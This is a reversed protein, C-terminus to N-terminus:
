GSLNGRCLVGAPQTVILMAIWSDSCHFNHSRPRGKIEIIVTSLTSASYSLVCVHTYTARRKFIFVSFTLTVSLFSNTQQQTVRTLAWQKCHDCWKPTSNFSAITEEMKGGPSFLKQCMAANRYHGIWMARGSAVSSVLKTAYTDATHVPNEVVWDQRRRRFSQFSFTNRISIRLCNQRTSIAIWVECTSWPRWRWRFMLPDCTLRRLRSFRPATPPSPPPTQPPATGRRLFNIFKENWFPTIHHM